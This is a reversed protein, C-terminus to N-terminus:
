AVPRPCGRCPKSNAEVNRVTQQAFEQLHVDDARDVAGDVLKVRCNHTLPSEDGTALELTQIIVLGVAKRRGLAEVQRFLRVVGQRLNIALRHDPSLRGFPFRKPEQWSRALRSKLNAM